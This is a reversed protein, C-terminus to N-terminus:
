RAVHDHTELSGLFFAGGHLYVLVGGTTAETARYVRVPVAGAATSVTRDDVAHLPRREALPTVQAEEDARMAAPDLPGPPPAPLTALVEAITPHLAM